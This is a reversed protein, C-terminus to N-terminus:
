WMTIYNTVVSQTPHTHHQVSKWMFFLKWPIKVIPRSRKWTPDHVNECLPMFAKVGKHSFGPFRSAISKHKFALYRV